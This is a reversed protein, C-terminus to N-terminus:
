SIMQVLVTLWNGLQGCKTLLSFPSLGRFVCSCPDGSERPCCSEYARQARWRFSAPQPVQIRVLVARDLASLEVTLSDGLACGLGFTACSTTGRAGSALGCSRLRRRLFHWNKTRGALRGGAAKGALGDQGESGSAESPQHYREFDLAFESLM